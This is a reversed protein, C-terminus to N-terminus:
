MELPGSGTLQILLPAVQSLRVIHEIEVHKIAMFPMLPAQAEEPNQVITTGGRMRVSFLGATGDSDSGTLLVAIVRDGYYYAASRFLPDIAPRHLNELPSRVVRVRDREVLLHRDTPAVYIGGPRIRQRNKPHFAPLVGRESLIAPLASPAFRLLHICVLVAAGFDRPLARLVSSVAQIGGFSAGVVVLKRSM